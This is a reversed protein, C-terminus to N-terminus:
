KGREKGGMLLGIQERPATPLVVGAIRGAYLVAIRTSLALIEDLETSLLVIATGQAQCERLKQHVYATAAIDLGRTPSAAVLLAPRQWLARAVVIKQQNGGSLSAAPLRMDSTRIDFNRALRDALARLKKNSMFPGTRVEPLNFAELMLNDQVSLSLALGERHRDPPIVSVSLDRRMQPDLRSLPRGALVFEDANFSRVGALAEFLETQGNGDVGAIGLVEGPAVSFSIQQLAVEDKHRRKTSLNKVSITPTDTGAQKAPAEAKPEGEKTILGPM